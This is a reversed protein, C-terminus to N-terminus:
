SMDAIVAAVVAGFATRIDAPATGTAWLTQAAHEVALLQPLKLWTRLGAIYVATVQDLRTMIFWVTVAPLTEQPGPAQPYGSLGVLVGPNDSGSGIQGLSGSPLGVIRNAYQVWEPPTAPTNILRVYTLSDVPLTM